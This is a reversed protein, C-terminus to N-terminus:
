KYLKIPKHAEMDEFQIDEEIEFEWEIGKDLILRMIYPAYPPINRDPMAIRM